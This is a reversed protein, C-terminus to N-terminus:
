GNQANEGASDRKELRAAEVKRLAVRTRRAQRLSVVVLAVILAISVVYASIVEAAYKGLDLM